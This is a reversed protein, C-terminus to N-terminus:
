SRKIDFSIEYVNLGAKSYKRMIRNFEDNLKMTNERNNEFKDTKDLAAFYEESLRRKFYLIEHPTRKLENIIIQEEELTLRTKGRFIRGYVLESIFSRDLYLHCYKSLELCKMFSEFPKEDDSGFHLALEFVAQPKNVISALCNDLVSVPKGTFIDRSWCTNADKIIAKTSIFTSKGCKDLGECITIM